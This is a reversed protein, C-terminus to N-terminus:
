KGKKKASNGDSIGKYLKDIKAQDTKPEQQQKPKRFFSYIAIGIGIIILAVGVILLGGLYVASSAYSSEYVRNQLVKLVTSNPGVNQFIAYYTGPALLTFNGDYYTANAPQLPPFSSSGLGRTAEYIGTGYLQATHSRMQSSNSIYNGLMAYATYNAFYFDLPEQPSTVYGVAALGTSNLTIGIAQGAGSALTINQIAVNGYGLSFAKAGDAVLIIIGIVFLAVGILLVRREM